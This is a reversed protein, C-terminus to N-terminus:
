GNTRTDYRKEGKKRFNKVCNAMKKIGNYCVNKFFAVAKHFTKLYFILGLAFGFYYYERFNPFLLHNLVVICLASFVLFFLIDAFFRLTKQMKKPHKLAFISCFEYLLGGVLGILVCIFFRKLQGASDM